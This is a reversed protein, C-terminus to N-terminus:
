TKGPRVELEEEVVFKGHVSECSDQVSSAESYVETILMRHLDWLFVTPITSSKV